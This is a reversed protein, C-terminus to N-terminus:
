WKPRRATEFIEKETMVKRLNVRDKKDRLMTDLIKLIQEGKAKKRPNKLMENAVDRIRDEYQLVEIMTNESAMAADNLPLGISIGEKKQGDVVEEPVVVVSLVKAM